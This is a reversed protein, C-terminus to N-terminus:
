KGAYIEIALAELEEATYVKVVEYEGPGVIRWIPQPLMLVHGIGNMEEGGFHVSGLATDFTETELVEVIREVDTVTGAKELAQSLWQPLLLGLLVAPTVEVGYRDEFEATFRAVEPWPESLCHPQYIFVNGAAKDWPVDGFGAEAFFGIAGLGEYGMDWMCELVDIGTMALDPDYTMYKTATPYYEVVVEGVTEVSKLELGYYDCAAKMGRYANETVLMGGRGCVVTKVEPHENAIYDFFPLVELDLTQLICFTHPTDPGVDPMGTYAILLIMPPDLEETIQMAAFGADSSGVLMFDVDRDYILKTAASHGGAVGVQGAVTIDEFIFDWRYREGAVEFEPYWDQYIEFAWMIPFGAIAGGAGSLTVGIGLKLTKVGEEKEGGCAIGIVLALSLVVVAAVSLWKKM